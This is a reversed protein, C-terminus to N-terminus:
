GERGSGAGVVVAAVDLYGAQVGVAEQVGGGVGTGVAAAGYQAL